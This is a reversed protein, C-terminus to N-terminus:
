PPAHTPPLSAVNACDHLEDKSDPALVIGYKYPTKAEDFVRQMDTDSIPAPEAACSVSGTRLLAAAALLLVLYLRYKM